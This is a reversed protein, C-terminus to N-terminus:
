KVTVSLQIHLSMSVEPTIGANELLDQMGIVDAHASLMESIATQCQKTLEEQLRDKLQQSADKTQIQIHYSLGSTDASKKLTYNQIYIEQSDNEFPITMTFGDANQRLWYMGKAATDSLATCTGDQHLLVLGLAQQQTLTPVLATEWIGNWENLIGSLETKCLLGNRESMRLMHVTDTSDIDQFYTEPNTYLVKCAPSLGQQFLLEEAPNKTCSGDLCLLETHGIFVKGGDSAEECRLLESISSGTVPQDAEQHFAQSYLTLITNTKTLGIAQTYTRDSITESQCGTMCLSILCIFIICKCKSHKM